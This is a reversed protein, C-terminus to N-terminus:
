FGILLYINVLLFNHKKLSLFDKQNLYKLKFFFICKWHLIFFIKYCDKLKIIYIYIYIRCSNNKLKKKQSIDKQGPKIVIILTSFM